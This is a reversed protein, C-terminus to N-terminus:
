PRIGASVVEDLAGLEGGLEAVTARAVAVDKGIFEGVASVFSAVSGANAVMGLARSAGSGHAVAGLLAAEDIGLGAALRAAESLLGLQAAFLVNNILKVKQGSGLPGVHLVPDGYASLVPQVGAVADDAGGLFLAIRGAAVDHPGGSVPADVVAVHPAEAAIAEATRPSGTTHLVLAAGSPMAALLGDDFCVRKVQDDTFVCVVAVDARAAADALEAVATAGLETVAQRAEDTRGLVRVEHGADVLRHVMPAGM